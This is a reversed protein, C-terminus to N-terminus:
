WDQQLLRALDEASYSGRVRVRSLEFLHDSTHTAGQVTTLGGWYNASKYVKITRQDYSGSPYAIWRPHYGLHRQIDEMGGLAQWVLYDVSKGQLDPHNRSHSGFRQGAASMEEIQPWTMYDPQNADVFDTILFFNGIMGYRQLLPFANIYNDVYGDDFTLIVPKEPLPQGSTLFRLLDDLTIVHYGADRLYRLHSEFLAPSVSLDRRVANAGAPPDSIYHYMLIPVQATRVTGDPTPGPTPTASPAITPTPTGTATATATPSPTATPQLVVAPLFIRSDTPVPTEGPPASPRETAILAASPPNTPKVTPSLSISPRPQASGSVPMTGGAAPTCASVALVFMIVVTALGLRGIL